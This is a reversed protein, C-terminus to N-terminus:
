SYHNSVLNRLFQQQQNEDLAQFSANRYLFHLIEDTLVTKYENTMHFGEM